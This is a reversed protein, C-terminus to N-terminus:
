KLITVDGQIIIGKPIDLRLIYYYTAHPLEQGASNVGKWDNNYPRAQYVIDGWRNFIIIENDPFVEPDVDELIEFRLEDNAGDGNPTIANAVPDQPANPDFKVEVKVVATDCLDPCAKSCLQYSFEDMGYIRPAVAYIVTGGNISDIRGLTPNRSIILDFGATTNLNDNQILNITGRRETAEITLQDNNAVPSLERTIAVSDASYNPCQEKSLTWVFVNRGEKLGLVETIFESPTEISAGSKTSWVGTTGAPLNGTLQADDACTTQDAGANANVLAPDVVVVVTATDVCGNRSNTVQLSYTGAANVKPALTREDTITGSGSTTRWLYSFGLGSSSGQGDLTIVAGACPLTVNPQATAVPTEKDEPVNVTASTECGTATNRVKLQYDGAARVRTQYPNGTPSVVQGALGTWEAVFQTGQSSSTGDLVIESTTCTIAAAPLIAVMPALTDLTVRVSDVAVCGTATDRVELIFSGAASVTTQITNAPQPAVAGGAGSWLYSISAGTASGAGNLTTTKVSCTLTQDMGANVAPKLTDAAVTVSTKGICGTLQNTVSLQYTGAAGVEPALTNQGSIIRGNSSTWAYAYSGTSPTVSAGLTLQPAKCTIKPNLSLSNVAPTDVTSSIIVSDALVCGNLSDRVSFVYSGPASAQFQLANTALVQGNLSWSTTFLGSPSNATGQLTVQPERCTITDGLGADASPLALDAVVNITDTSVCRSATDTVQLVFRGAELVKPNRLTDGGAELRGGDFPTWLVQFGTSNSISPTLVPEPVRCTISTDVGADIDPYATTPIVSVTDRAICGNGEETVQLVYDGLQTVKVKTGTGLATGNKDFWAYLVPRLNVSGGGDLTLSDGTCPLELDAGARADPLETANEVVVTDTAFCGNVINRVELAYLGPALARPKVVNEDGPLIIGGDLATWKYSISDGSSSFSGDLFLTDSLCSFLQDDGAKAGPVSPPLVIVTDKVACGTNKNFVTLVYTGAAGAIVSPRETDGPLSGFITSWSYSFDAGTSGTGSLLTFPPNCGLVKDPGANVEPLIETMPVDFTDRLVLPPRSEDFITVAVQGVPLNRAKNTFQRPVSEWFFFINGQGGEVTLTVSGDNADPCTVPTIVTDTIILRDLICIKGPIPFVSGAGTLTNVTPSPDDEVTIEICDTPDGVPVFCVQFLSTSDALSAGNIDLWSFSILGVNASEADFNIGDVLGLAGSPIIKGYALGTPDWNITYEASTIDKFGAVRFDVCTTDGKYGEEEGIILFFGTPNLVCVEAPTSILGIDNGNSTSSIAQPVIPIDVVQVGNCNEEQGLEGPPTGVVEYCVQFLSSGDPLTAPNASKWEFSFLGGDVGDLGFSDRTAGALNINKIDTFKLHTPEWAVSFDLEVINELNTVTFDLCVTDGPVGQDGTIALQVGDPQIVQVACNNPAIGINATSGRKTVVATSPNFSIPGDGGLGVVQFCVEYIAAGDPVTATFIANVSKWDVGLIGNGVNTVNFHTTKSFGPVQSNSALIRVDKYKLINPNFEMLYSFRTLDTLGQATVRVCIEDNLNVPAGCNATLRLGTPTCAGSSIVAPTLVAPISYQTDQVVNVAELPTLSSSFSVESSSECDGIINFCVQFIVTSDPLSISPRQIDTWNWSLTLRGKGINPRDPTGFSERGLNVLKETNIVNSFELFTSDYDMTFQLSTLGDFGVVSVNTCVLDGTNGKVNSAILSLPRVCTSILGKRQVLGINFCAPPRKVIIPEPDEDGILKPDDTIGVESTTGYGGLAKFCLSFIRTSDPLTVDKPNPNECVDGEWNLFILGEATRTLDFDGLDLENLNLNQVGTFEVVKPNFYIPFKLSAIDTFDKVTIDVCYTEGTCPSGSSFYFTPQAWVATSAAIVFAISALLKKM